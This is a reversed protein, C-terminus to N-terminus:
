EADSSSSGSESSSDSGSDSSSSSDSDSRQRRSGAKKKNLKAKNSRRKDKAVGKDKRVTKPTAGTVNIVVSGVVNGVTGHVITSVIRMRQPHGSAAPHKLSEQESLGKNCWQQALIERRLAVEKLKHRKRLERMLGIMYDISRQDEPTEAVLGARFGSSISSSTDDESDYVYAM